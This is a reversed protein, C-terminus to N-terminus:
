PNVERGMGPRTSPRGQPRVVESAEGGEPPVESSRSTIEGAPEEGAAAPVEARAPAEGTMIYAEFPRAATIWASRTIAGRVAVRLAIMRADVLDPSADGELLYAEIEQARVPLESLVVRQALLLDLAFQRARIHHPPPIAPKRAPAPPKAATDAPKDGPKRIDTM